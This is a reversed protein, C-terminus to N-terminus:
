AAGTGRIIAPITQLMIKVDLWLSWTDIYRMDLEMWKEFPVSNRGHVQWLCTIGPKVSFRRRQWDESFLNYDRLAMARPGVLSMEGRLVNFLQPLEDLSTKRLLRGIPTIRPDNKMKFVPGTMENLHLLDKQRAEADTVMTRFKHMLFLRKSLGVRKQSFFVPGGSTAWIALAILLFLPSLVVLLFVSGLMDILRKTMLDRGHDQGPYATIHATGEFERIRPQALTFNFIHSDFRMMIGHEEFVAAVRATLEYFSQLPLFFAAEDIVNDRLFTPLTSFTCCQRYGSKEFSATGSWKDDVFGVIRYGLEPHSEIKTAFEIARSNTGVILIFHINHGSRRLHSLALRALIRNSLLSAVGFGWFLALFSATMMHLRFVAATALLTVAALSVCKVVDSAEPLFSSLRKSHYLGSAYLTGHWVALLAVFILFNWLKIKVSMVGILSPMDSRGTALFMAFVFSSALSVTDLIKLSNPWIPLFFRNAPGM